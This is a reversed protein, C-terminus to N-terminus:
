LRGSILNNLRFSQQNLPTWGHESYTALNHLAEKKQPVFRVKVKRYVIVDYALHMPEEITEPRFPSGVNQSIKLWTPGAHGM